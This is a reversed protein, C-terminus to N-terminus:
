PDYQLNLLDDKTDSMKFYIQNGEAERLKKFAEAFDTGKDVWIKKPRNKKTIM